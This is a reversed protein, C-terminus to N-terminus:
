NILNSGKGSGLEMTPFLINVHRAIENKMIVKM